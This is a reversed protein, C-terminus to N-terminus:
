IDVQYLIFKSINNNKRYGLVQPSSFTNTGACFQLKTSVKTRNKQKM